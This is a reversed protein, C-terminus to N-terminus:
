QHRRVSEDIHHITSTTLSGLDSAHEEEMYSGRFAMAKGHGSASWVM